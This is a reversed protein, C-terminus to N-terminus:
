VVGANELDFVSVKLTFQGFCLSKFIIAHSSANARCIKLSRTFLVMMSTITGYIHIPLIGM